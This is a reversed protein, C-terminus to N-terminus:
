ALAQLRLDNGDTDQMTVHVKDIPEASLDGIGGKVQSSIVRGLKEAFEETTYDQLSVKVTLVM